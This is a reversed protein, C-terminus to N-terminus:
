HQHQELGVCWRARCSHSPMAQKKATNHHPGRQLMANELGLRTKAMFVWAQHGLSYESIISQIAYKAGFGITTSAALVLKILKHKVAQCCSLHPFSRKTLLCGTNNKHQKQSKHVMHSLRFLNIQTHLHQLIGLKQTHKQTRTM